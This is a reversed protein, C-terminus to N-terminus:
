RMYKPRNKWGQQSNIKEEDRYSKSCQFMQKKIREDLELRRLVEKNRFCLLDKIDDPLEPILPEPLQTKGVSGSGFIIVKRM